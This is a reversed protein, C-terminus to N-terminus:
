DTCPGASRVRLDFIARKIGKVAAETIAIIIVNRYTWDHAVIRCNEPTLAHAMVQCEFDRRDNSLSALYLPKDKM